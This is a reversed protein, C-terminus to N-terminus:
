PMKLYLDKRTSGGYKPLPSGNARWCTAVYGDFLEERGCVPDKVQGIYINSINDWRFSKVDYGGVTETITLIVEKM